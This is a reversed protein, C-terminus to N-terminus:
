LKAEELWPAPVLPEDLRLATALRNEAEAARGNRILTLLTEDIASRWQGPSVKNPCERCCLPPPTGVRPCRDACEKERARAKIRAGALLDSLREVEPTLWERMKGRLWRAMAPSSGGTSAALTVKGRTEVAPLIYDCNAADDAANVLAGNARAEAAVSKNLSGDDTAIAVIFAGRTDGEEFGRQLWAMQGQDVLGQLEPTLMPAVVRLKAGASILRPAKETAVAGGGVLLASKGRLDLFVPYYDM